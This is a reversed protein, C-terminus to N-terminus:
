PLTSFGAQTYHKDFTLATSIKLQEMVVFSICDTLSYSKDEHGKFYDWGDHFLSEDVQILRISPSNLINGGIDVAKAHYGRSNFFTVVENLIYSTTVLSPLNNTLVIWHRFAADHYQDDSAELAIIYGTDLFVPTM